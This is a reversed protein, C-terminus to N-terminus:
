TDTRVRVNGGEGCRATFMEYFSVGCLVVFSVLWELLVDRVLFYFWLFVVVVALQPSSQMSEAYLWALVLVEFILFV